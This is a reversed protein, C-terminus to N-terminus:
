IARAASCRFVRDRVGNNVQELNHFLDTKSSMQQIVSGDVGSVSM